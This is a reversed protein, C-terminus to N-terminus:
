PSMLDGEGGLDGTTGSHSLARLAAMDGSIITSMSKRTGSDRSAWSSTLMSRWFQNGGIGGLVFGLKLIGGSGTPFFFRRLARYARTWLHYLLLLARHASAIRSPVHSLSCDESGIAVCSGNQRPSRSVGDTSSRLSGPCIRGSQQSRKFGAVLASSKSVSLLMSLVFAGPGSPMTSWAILRSGIPSSVAWM